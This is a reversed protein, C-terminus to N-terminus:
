WKGKPNLDIILIFHCPALYPTLIQTEKYPQVTSGADSILFGIREGSNHM